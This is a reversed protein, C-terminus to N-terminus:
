SGTGAVRQLPTELAAATNLLRRDDMAPAMLMLGIGPVQSRQDPRCLPLSISCADVFNGVSTNRLALLNRSRYYDTDGDDFSAVTPAVMAVTPMILADFARCRRGFLEIFRRRQRQIELYDAATLAAGAEIRMRVRQDYREGDRALLQHHWHYAEAAALGGGRNVDALDHLEPFSVEELVVGASALTPLATEFREVVIDDAQDLFLDRVVGLRLAELRFGRQVTRPETVLGAMVADLRACCDVSPALPGVADMSPSLPVIGDLPVRRATPKFGVINSFAAPIRCSGGTDTGLGAAVMADSVAVATGSSSGGPIRGGGGRNWPSRPTGYHANLGLGSYAFETMNTRGVIIFGAARLRAVAPADVPAPEGDALVVSGATTVEGAIDALDKVAIPVGGYPGVRGGAARARDVADAEARAREGAVSIFARSGEGAPDDIRELAAEVLDRASVKGTFLRETLDVVTPYSGLMDSLDRDM